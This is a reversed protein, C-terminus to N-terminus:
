WDINKGAKPEAKLTTEALSIIFFFILDFQKEEGNMAAWFIFQLM